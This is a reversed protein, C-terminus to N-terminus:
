DPLLSFLRIVGILVACLSFGFLFSLWDFSIIEM